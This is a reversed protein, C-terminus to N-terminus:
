SLKGMSLKLRLMGNNSFNPLNYYDVSYMLADLVAIVNGHPIDMYRNAGTFGFYTDQAKNHAPFAGVSKVTADAFNYFEVNIYDANHSTPEHRAFILFGNPNITRCLAYVALDNDAYGIIERATLDARPAKFIKTKYIVGNSNDMSWYVYNADFVFGLTRFDQSGSGMEIWSEGYDSSKFIHSEADSDGSGLWLGTSYNYPDCQIVHFHRIASTLLRSTLDTWVKGGGHYYRWLKCLGNSAPSPNYECIFTYAGVVEFNHRFSLISNSGLLKTSQLTLTAVDYVLLTNLNANNIDYQFFFLLPSAENWSVALKTIRKGSPHDNSVTGISEWTDGGNTSKYIELTTETIKPSPIAYMDTWVRSKIDYTQAVDYFSNYTSDKVTGMLAVSSITPASLRNYLGQIKAGSYALVSSPTTDDIGVAAVTADKLENVAGSLTQATTSLEEAGNQVDLQSILQAAEGLAGEVTVSTFNGDADEIGVLSAGKNEATSALDTNNAKATDLEEAAAEVVSNVKNSSFALVSSPTVDDIGVAAATADVLENVAGSLTQATTELTASGVKTEIALFKTVLTLLANVIKEFINM